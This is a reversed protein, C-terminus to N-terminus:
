ASVCGRNATLGVMGLKQRRVMEAPFTAGLSDCITGLTITQAM